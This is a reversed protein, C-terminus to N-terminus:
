EPVTGNIGHAREFLYLFLEPDLTDASHIYEILPHVLRREIGRDTNGQFYKMLTGAVKSRGLQKMYSSSVEKAHRRCTERQDAELQELSIVRTARSLSSDVRSPVSVDIVVPHPADSPSVLDANMTVPACVFVVHAERFVRPISSLPATNFEDIRRPTRNVLYIDSVLSNNRMRRFIDAGLSGAGVIGVRSLDPRANYAVRIAWNAISRSPRRAQNRFDKGQSIALNVLRPLIRGRDISSSHTGLSKKLQGLIEDEGYVLSDHGIAVKVVHEVAGESEYVYASVNSFLADRIAGAVRPTNESSAYVEYRNCTSLVISERIGDIENVLIAAEKADPFQLKQFNPVTKYSAGVVVPKLLASSVFEFSVSLFM